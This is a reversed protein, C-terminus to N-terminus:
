SAKIIKSEYGRIFESATMTSKGDPQLEQIYITGDSTDVGILGTEKVISIDGPKGTNLPVCYAKIISLNISGFSTRAKPWGQYARIKKEIIEAPENWDIIGDSKLLIKTYTAQSEDQEKATCEGSIIKPLVSVLENAGLSSLDRFMDQRNSQGGLPCKKQYYIPGADMKESLKIFTIGTVQDGSLIPSEIPSPGRYKPLLSPHLNIIGTPEFLDLIEKPVLKGYSVLIGVKNQIENIKDRIDLLNEPQWVPINNKIGVEKVAPMSTKQGRGRKSDPKTIIAKIEWGDEILKVLSNVSFEESGFFIVKNSQKKM